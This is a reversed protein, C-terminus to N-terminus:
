PGGLVEPHHRRSTPAGGRLVDDYRCPIADEAVHTAETRHQRDETRQGRQCKSGNVWLNPSVNTHYMQVHYLNEPPLAPAPYPTCPCRPSWRPSAASWRSRRGWSCRRTAHAVNPWEPKQILLQTAFIEFCTEFSFLVSGHQGGGRDGTLPFESRASILNLEGVFGLIKECKGANKKDAM